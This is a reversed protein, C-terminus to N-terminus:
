GATFVPQYNNCASNDAPYRRSVQKLDDLGLEEAFKQFGQCDRYYRKEQARYETCPKKLEVDQRGGYEGRGWPAYINREVDYHSMVSRLMTRKKNVSIGKLFKEYWQELVDQKRSNTRKFHRM